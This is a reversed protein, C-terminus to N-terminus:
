PDIASYIRVTDRSLFGESYVSYFWLMYFTSQIISHKERFLFSLWLEQFSNSWTLCFLIVTPLAAIGDSNIGDGQVKDHRVDSSLVEKDM